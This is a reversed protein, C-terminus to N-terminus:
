SEVVAKVLEADRRLTGFREAVNVLKLRHTIWASLSITGEELLDIVRAFCDSTGNRSAMLTLERQHFNADNFTIDGPFHGVFVIKGGQAMTEFTAEMSAASGTADFLVLPQDVEDLSTACTVGAFQSQCFGLRADSVDVASVRAGALTAFQVISLGIPGVGVVTVPQGPQLQARDVAHMGVVLMEVLALQDADIGDGPHLKAVPVVIQESMGGDLHVGLVRMQECANTLGRRCADCAGCNYYPEVACVDGPAIGRDNADVDLVEVALEHGLVRPYSFFTQRGDYAHYDTGCIGIRKVRVLAEGAGRQPRPAEANAMVGPSELMVQLM